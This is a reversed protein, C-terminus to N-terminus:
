NLFGLIIVVHLMLHITVLESVFCFLVFSSYAHIKIQNLCSICNLLLFVCPGMLIREYYSLLRSTAVIPVNKAHLKIFFQIIVHINRRGHIM